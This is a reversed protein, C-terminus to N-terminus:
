EKKKNPNSQKTNHFSQKNTKALQNQDVNAIDKAIIGNRITYGFNQTTKYKRSDYTNQYRKYNKGIMKKNRNKLTKHNM